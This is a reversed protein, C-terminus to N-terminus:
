LMAKEVVDALVRESNVQMERLNLAVSLLMEPSKIIEIIRQALLSPTIVDQTIYWSANQAALVRANSLQHNDAAYPYPILIAPQCLSTIESITSAGARSIVLHSQQYRDIIDHFFDKVEHKVGLQNYASELAAIDSTITQHVVEIFNKEYQQLILAVASPVLRTFISAGQSGGLVLIRFYKTDFTREKVSRMVKRIPNGTIIVKDKYKHHLKIVDTYATTIFKACSAFFRNAKGFHSNQEHLIFPVKLLIAGIIVPTITYGGFAVIVNPKHKKVLMIGSISTTLVKIYAWAKYIKNSPISSMKIVHIEFEDGLDMIYKQCRSDTILHVVYGRAKLEQGLAVASFFHGGTGGGVVFVRKM